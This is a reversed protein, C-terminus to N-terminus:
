EETGPQDAAIDDDLIAVALLTDEGIDHWDHRTHPHFVYTEPGRYEIWREGPLGLKGAGTVVQCFAVGPSSHMAFRGGKAIEVLQLEVGARREIRHIRVGELPESQWRPEVDMRPEPRVDARVFDGDVDFVTVRM